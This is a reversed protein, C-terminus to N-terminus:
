GALTVRPLDVIFVCGQNPLNRLRLEGGSAEVGRRAISLGLGV